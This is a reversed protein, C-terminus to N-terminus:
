NENNYKKFYKKLKKHDLFFKNNNSKYSFNSSVKKIKENKYKIIKKGGFGDNYYFINKEKRVEKPLIIYYKKLEITKLSDSETILDENIKEGDRIGIIKVRNKSNISKVLELIKYSPIKPVFIEGGMNNQLSWLIMEISEKLSINFRTMNKDTITFCESNKQSLFLPVVSGRSGFVNGYRVISFKINKSGVINNAAIFLKDSCLKTAGYLNIPAAAKDTSISIVNKVNSTMSAEIINQAGIINTQIFEFPDYEASDVQKLAAAHIVFDVDQMARKLREKDRVDGLLFRLNKNLNKKFEQKMNYQKFEDRSYIVIKKIKPLKKLIVKTLARGLSGTGGTILISKNNLM